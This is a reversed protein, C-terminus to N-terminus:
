HTTYHIAKGFRAEFYPNDNIIWVLERNLKDRRWDFEGDTFVISADPKNEEIWDFICEPDTGGRGKFQVAKLEALSKIKHVGTIVTNFTILTINPKFRKLVGTLESVMATFQYDEVSSSIDMFVVLEKLGKSFRSPLHIEPFFRKNPRAYNYGAKIRAHLWRSLITTWPLKPDLLSQLMVQIDSPVAGAGHRSMRAVTVARLLMDQVELDHITPDVDPDRLDEWMDPPPQFNEKVLVEYIDPASMGNFRAEYLGGCKPMKMGRSVLTGNIAFDCAAQWLRLIRGKGRGVCHKWVVHLAEHVTVFVREERDLSMYWDPNWGIIRGNTYATPQSDDWVTKLSLVLTSFFVLESKSMLLVKTKGMERNLKTTDMIDKQYHNWARSRLM